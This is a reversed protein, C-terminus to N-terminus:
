YGWIPRQSIGELIPAAHRRRDKPLYPIPFVGFDTRGKPTFHYTVRTYPRQDRDEEQTFEEWLYGNDRGPVVIRPYLPYDLRAVIVVGSQSLLPLLSSRHNTGTRCRRSM